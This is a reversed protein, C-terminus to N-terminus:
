KHPYCFKASCKRTKKKNLSNLSQVNVNSKEQQLGVLVRKNDWHVQTYTFIQFEVRVIISRLQRSGNRKNNKETSQTFLLFFTKYSTIFLLYLFKKPHHHDSKIM